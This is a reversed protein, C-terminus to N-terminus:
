KKKIRLRKLSPTREKEDLLKCKFGFNEENGEKNLVIIHTKGGIECLTWHEPTNKESTIHNIVSECFKPRAEYIMTTIFNNKSDHTYSGINRQYTKSLEECLSELIKEAKQLYDLYYLTREFDHQIYFQKSRHYGYSLYTLQVVLALLGLGMGLLWLLIISVNFFAGIAGGTIGFVTITAISKIYDRTETGFTIYKELYKLDANRLQENEKFNLERSKYMIDLNRLSANMLTIAEDAYNFTCKDAKNIRSMLEKYEEHSFVTFPKSPEKASFAGTCTWVRRVANEPRLVALKLLDPDFADTCKM